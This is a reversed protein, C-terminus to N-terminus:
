YLFRLNNSVLDEFGINERNCRVKRVLIMQKKTNIKTIILALVPIKQIVKARM